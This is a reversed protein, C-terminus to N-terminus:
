IAYLFVLLHILIYFPITGLDHPIEELLFFSHLLSSTSDLPFSDYFIIKIIQTKQSSCCTSADGTSLVWTRGLQIERKLWRCGPQAEGPPSGSSEWTLFRLSRHKVASKLRRINQKELGQRWSQKSKGKNALGDKTGGHGTDTGWGRKSELLSDSWGRAAWCEWNLHGPTGPLVHAGNVTDGAQWSDCRLGLGGNGSCIWCELEGAMTAETGGCLGEVRGWYKRPSRWFKVM